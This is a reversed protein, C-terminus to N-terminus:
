IPRSLVAAFMILDTATASQVGDACDAYGVRILSDNGGTLLTSDNIYSGDQSLFIHDGPTFGKGTLAGAINPGVLVVQGFANIAITENAVGIWIQKGVADSDAQSIGGDALKAIPAGLPIQVGSTNKMSKVLLSSGLSSSIQVTDLNQVVSIGTGAAFTRFRLDAGVKDKFAGVAGGVNSATNTEGGGAGSGLLSTGQKRIIIKSPTQASADITYSFQIQTTSLKVFDKGVGLKQYIGNVYAEIDLKSSDNIWSLATATITNTPSTIEIEEEVPNNNNISDIQSQLGTQASDLQAKTSLDNPDVAAGARLKKGGLDVTNADFQSIPLKNPGVRLSSLDVTENESDFPVAKGNTVTIIRKNAM